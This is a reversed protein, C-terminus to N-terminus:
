GSLNFSRGDITLTAQDASPASPTFTVRFTVTQGPAIQVPLTLGPALKFATGSVVVSQVTLSSNAPNSLVFGQSQSAGVAVSGFNVVAGATLATQSGSLSVTAGGAAAGQLVINLSNVALFASFSGTISPTFDIDFEVESAPGTYPALTYPLSPVAAFSFGQGALSLTSLAAPGAGINRVHFRTKITDGPAAAGLNVLSGVATDNTGDFEFVQLQALASLPLLTAFILLRTLM